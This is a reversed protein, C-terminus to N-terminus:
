IKVSLAGVFTLAPNSFTWHNYQMLEGVGLQVPGAVPVSVTLGPAFRVSTGLNTAVGVVNFRLAGAKVATYGLGVGITNTAPAANTPQTIVATFRDDAMAPAALGLLLFLTILFKKM